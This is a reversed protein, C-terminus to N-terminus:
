KLVPKVKIKYRNKIIDKSQKLKYAIVEKENQIIMTYREVWLSRPDRPTLTRPGAQPSLPIKKWITGYFKLKYGKSMGYIDNPKSNLSKKRILIKQFQPEKTTLRQFM